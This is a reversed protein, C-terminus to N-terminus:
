AEIVRNNYLDKLEEMSMSMMKGLETEHLGEVIEGVRQRNHEAKKIIYKGTLRRALLGVLSHSINAPCRASCVGCSICDFSENACKELDNRKAYAIYRMVNLGSTCSKTCSNCAVCAFVEPFLSMMTSHEPTLKEIDYTKRNLPFFPLTAVYMGDEVKTHCALDFHIASEGAKRYITACAGCFGHRCGVGRVLKFGAYEMATMITLDDPVQYAKNDFYITVM